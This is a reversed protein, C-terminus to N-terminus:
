QFMESSFISSTPLQKKQVPAIDVQLKESSLSKDSMHDTCKLTPSGISNFSTTRGNLLSSSASGGEHCTSSADGTSIPTLSQNTTAQTSNAYQQQQSVPPRLDTATPLRQHLEFYIKESNLLEQVIEYAAQQRGAQLLRNSELVRRCTQQDNPNKLVM